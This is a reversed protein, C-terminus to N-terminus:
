ICLNLKINTCHVCGHVSLCAKENLRRIFTYLLLLTYLLSFLYYFTIHLLSIYYCSSNCSTVTCFTCVNWVPFYYILMCALLTCHASKWNLLHTKIHDIMKLFRGSGSLKLGFYSFMQFWGLDTHSPPKLELKLFKMMNQSKLQSWLSNM